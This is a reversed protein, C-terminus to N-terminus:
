GRTLRLATLGRFHYRDAYVPPEALALAPMRAFLMPLAIALELRALPAGVCFHIGAGFALQAPAPGAPTSATRTPSGHPIATPPLSCAASRRAARCRTASRGGRGAARHPHFSAASSRLAADGRRHGRHRGRRRVTADPDAGAALIANVGNGIAHVTAEHGANLLLVCTAILEDTSLRDGDAEAAILETILDDAPRRPADAVHARLYAPSTARRPTRRDEVDRDRRAQYM